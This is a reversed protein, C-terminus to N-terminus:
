GGHDAIPAVITRIHREALTKPAELGDMMFEVRGRGARDRYYHATTTQELRTGDALTLRVTTIADASFPADLVLPKSLPGGIGAAPDAQQGLGVVPIAAALCFGVCVGRINQIPRM